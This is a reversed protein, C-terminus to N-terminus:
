ETGREDLAARARKYADNADLINHYAGARTITQELKDAAKIAERLGEVERKLAALQSTIAEVEGSAEEQLQYDPEGLQELAREIAETKTDTTETM